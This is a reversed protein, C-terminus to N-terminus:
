SLLPRFSRNSVLFVKLAELWNKGFTYRRPRLLTRAATFFILGGVSLVLGQGNQALYDQAFSGLGGLGDESGSALLDGINTQVLSSPDSLKLLANTINEKLKDTCQKRYFDSLSM